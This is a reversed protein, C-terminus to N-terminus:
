WRLYMPLTDQRQRELAELAQEQGLHSRLRIADRRRRDSRGMEPEQAMRPGKLLIKGRVDLSSRADLPSSRFSSGNRISEPFGSRLVGERGAVKAEEAAKREALLAMSEGTAPDLGKAPALGALREVEALASAVEPASGYIYIPVQGGVRNPGTTRRLYNHYGAYQIGGYERLAKPDPTEVIMNYPGGYPSMCGPQVNMQCDQPHGFVMISGDDGRDQIKGFIMMRPYKQKVVEYKTLADRYLTPSYESTTGARATQRSREGNRTSLSSPRSASAGSRATDTAAVDGRNVTRILLGGKTPTVSATITKGVLASWDVHHHPENTTELLTDKFASMEEYAVLSRTGGDPMSLTVDFPTSKTDGVKDVRGTIRIWTAIWAKWASEVEAVRYLDDKSGYVYVPVDAGFANQGAERGIFYHGARYAIGGFERIANADPSLVALNHPEAPSPCGPDVNFSCGSLIRGSLYLTGDDAHEKITGQLTVYPHKAKVKEYNAAAKECTALQTPTQGCITPSDIWSILVAMTVLSGLRLRRM